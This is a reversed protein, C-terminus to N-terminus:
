PRRYEPRWRPLRMEVQRIGLALLIGILGLTLLAVMM